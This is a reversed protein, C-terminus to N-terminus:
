SGYVFPNIVKLWHIKKFDKDNETIICSVNNEKMVSAILADWYSVGHEASIDIANIINNENIPFINFNSFNIIDQINRKMEDTKVPFTIKKTAVVFLESLNQVSLAYVRKRRWCDALLNKAIIHKEKESSDYAYILVNSDLLKIDKSEIM